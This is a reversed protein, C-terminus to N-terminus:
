MKQNENHGRKTPGPTVGAWTWPSPWSARKGPEGAVQSDGTSACLGGSSNASADRHGSATPQYPDYTEDCYPCVLVHSAYVAVMQHQCIPCNM